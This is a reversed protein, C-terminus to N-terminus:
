PTGSIIKTRTALCRLARFGIAAAVGCLMSAAYGGLAGGHTAGLLGGFCGSLIVGEFRHHHDRGARRVVEGIAALRWRRQLRVAAEAISDNTLEDRTAEALAPRGLAVLSLILGAEIVSVVVSPVGADRQM